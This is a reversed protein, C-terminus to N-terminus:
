RCPGDHGIVDSYGKSMRQTDSELWFRARFSNCIHLQLKPSVRVGEEQDKWIATGVVTLPFGTVICLIRCLDFEM